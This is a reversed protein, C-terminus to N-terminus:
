THPRGRGTHWGLAGLVVLVLPVLGTHVLLWRKVTDVSVESGGVLVWRIDHGFLSRYGRMDTGVTVARLALQDWPLLLGSFSGVLLVVVVSPGIAAWARRRRDISWTAVAEAVMLAGLLSSTLVTAAAIWRHVHRIRLGLEVQSQMRYIDNWAQAATPRYFLGLYVGTAALAVVEAVVIWAVLRRVRAATWSSEAPQM